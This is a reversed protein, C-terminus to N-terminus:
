PPSSIAKMIAGTAIAWCSMSRIQEVATLDEENDEYIKGGDVLLWTVPYDPRWETLHDKYQPKM